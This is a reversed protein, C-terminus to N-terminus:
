LDLDLEASFDQPNETFTAGLKQWMRYSALSEKPITAAVLTAGEARAALLMQTFAITGYGKNWQKSTLWYGIKRGDTNRADRSISIIGIPYAELMITYTQGSEKKMWVRCAKLFDARNVTQSSGLAKQLRTDTNLIEVLAECHDSLLPAITIM